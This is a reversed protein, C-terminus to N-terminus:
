QHLFLNILRVTRQKFVRSCAIGSGNVNIVDVHSYAYEKDEVLHPDLRLIYSLPIFFALAKSM